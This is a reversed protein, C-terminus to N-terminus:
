RRGALAVQGLALGGDNPPVLRHTLVAFGSEELGRKAAELLTVNQFVGGSLAATDIHYRRRMEQASAVVADALAQHFRRSVAAAPVGTVIDAAVARVVPSPDVVLAEDRDVLEFRYSGDGGPSGATGGAGLAELEIAAQGEYSIEHRVGALSAVADFLRGISSTEVSNLGTELQQRIIRREEATARAVAPLREDWEARAAHLHSLAMRYPRKVAADGGVLQAVGLHGARFFGDLNGVLIEGGWITEDIGYGTGDFSVGIVPGTHKNEAMVSGIHAHHHQVHVVRDGFNDEAWRTSLYRPHLDAVVREPEIRFLGTMHDVAATFADLTELNEMDGIHQSMFANEGDALCFTAKLEGGVALTPPVSVPLRVPFPAFGRSRRVPLEAGAAIRLVSDDCHVHIGRDHLLLVDALELLKERAETNGKVIPESAYNASTMVWVDGPELLLHHLPTYPLMVGIRNNGPAIGDVLDSAETEDVLVIPRQPSQLLVREADDLDAVQETTALDAAMVAFPKATRHKRERLASVADANRADCALHFGGIGKIAVIAGEGIRRRTDAIADHTPIVDGQELWIRPGCDPCANPQAHFRRDAPDDYEAQCPGCMVFSAMTTLPRDYPTERTITFRPGCNTCNIFPYRFRRDAPDNMEALCDDCVELDPSVLTTAACHRQSEVIVFESDGTAPIDTRDISDIHALPPPDAQVRLVFEDIAAAEGELEIFVGASDNGVFGSLDLSTALQYVTPRFGVGQVVGAVRLRQRIVDQESM